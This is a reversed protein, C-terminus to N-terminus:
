DYVIVIVLQLLLISLYKLDLLVRLEVKGEDPRGTPTMQMTLRMWEGRGWEIVGDPRM